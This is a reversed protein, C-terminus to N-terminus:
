GLLDSSEPRRDMGRPIGLFGRVIWGTVWVLAAYIALGAILYGMAEAFEKRWAKQHESIASKEDASSLTFRKQVQKEYASVESSYKQAGWTMGQSDTKYPILELPENNKSKFTMTELCVAVKIEKSVSSQHEFYVTKGIDTCDQDTKIFPANPSSLSYKIRYYPEANYSILVTTLTAGVGLVFAIRRAGEFINITM